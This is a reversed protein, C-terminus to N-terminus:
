AIREYVYVDVARLGTFEVAELVSRLPGEADAHVSALRYDAFERVEYTLLWDGSANSGWAPAVNPAYFTVMDNRILLSSGPRGAPDDFITLTDGASAADHIWELAAARSPHTTAPGILTATGLTVLALSVALATEPRIRRVLLLAQGLGTAATWARSAAALLGFVLLAGGARATSREVEHAPRRFLIWCLPVLTLAVFRVNDFWLLPSDDVLWHASAFLIGILLLGLVISWLLGELEDQTARKLSARLRALFFGAVTLFLLPIYLAKFVLAYAFLDPSELLAATARSVQPNASVRGTLAHNHWSWLGSAAAFLAGAALYPANFANWWPRGAPRGFRIRWAVVLVLIPAFFLGLSSRALFAGSAFLAALVVFPPRELSRVLAWLTLVFLITALNETYRYGTLFLLVPDLAVVLSTWQAARDGWLNRTTTYAVAIAAVSTSISALDLGWALSGSIEAFFWVITSYLPTLPLQGRPTGAWIAALGDRTDIAYGFSDYEPAFTRLTVLRALLGFVM